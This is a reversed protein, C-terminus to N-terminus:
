LSILCVASAARSSPPQLFSPGFFSGQGLKLASLESHLWWLWTQTCISCFGYVLTWLPHCFSYCKMFLCAKWKERSQIGSLKPGGVDATARGAWNASRCILWTCICESSVLRSAAKDKVGEAQCTKTITMIVVGFSARFFVPHKIDYYWWFQTFELWDCCFILSVIQSFNM